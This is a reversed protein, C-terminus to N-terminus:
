VQRWRLGRESEGAPSSADMTIRAEHYPEASNRLPETGPRHVVGFNDVSEVVPTEAVAGVGSRDAVFDISTCSLSAGWPVV